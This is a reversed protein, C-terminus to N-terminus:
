DKDTLTPESTTDAQARRGDSQEKTSVPEDPELLWRIMRAISDGDGTKGREIGSLERSSIGIQDALEKLSYGKFARYIRVVTLLRM